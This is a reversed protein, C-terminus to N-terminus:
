HIGLWDGVEKALRSSPAGLEELAGLAERALKVAGERDGTKDLVQAHVFQVQSTLGAMTKGDDVLKVAREINAKASAIDGLHLDCDAIGSLIQTLHPGPPTQLDNSLKLASQYSAKADKYKKLARQVDGVSVTTTMVLPHVPGLRSALDRNLETLRQLSGKFDGKAHLVQASLQRASVVRGDADGFVELGFEIAQDLWALSAEFNGLMFEIRGLGDLPSFQSARDKIEAKEFRDNADAFYKKAEEYRGQLMRVRGLDNAAIAPTPHNRGFVSEWAKLCEEYQALAEEYKASQELMRGYNIM